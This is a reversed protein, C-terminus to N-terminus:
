RVRIYIYKEFLYAPIVKWSENSQEENDLLRSIWAQRLSKVMVKISPM